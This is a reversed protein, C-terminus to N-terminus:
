LKKKLKGKRRLTRRVKGATESHARHQLSLPKQFSIPPHGDKSPHLVDHRGGAAPPVASVPFGGLEAPHVEFPTLPVTSFVDRQFGAFRTFRGHRIFSNRSIEAVDAGSEADRYDVIIKTLRIVTLWHYDIGDCSRWLQFQLLPYYIEEM